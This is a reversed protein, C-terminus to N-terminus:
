FRLIGYSSFAQKPTHKRNRNFADKAVDPEGFPVLPSGGDKVIPYGAPQQTKTFTMIAQAQATCAEETDGTLLEAPVGTASSVRNLMESRATAKNLADLQARTADLQDAKEKLADYDSYKARERNLRDAVISNVEEQTFTRPEQQEGAATTRSEQTVTENM